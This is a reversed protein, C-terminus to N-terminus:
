LGNPVNIINTKPTEWCTTIQFGTGGGPLITTPCYLHHLCIHVYLLLHKSLM